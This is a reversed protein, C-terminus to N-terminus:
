SIFLIKFNQGCFLDEHTDIYKDLALPTHTTSADVLTAILMRGVM